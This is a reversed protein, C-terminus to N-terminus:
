KKGKRLFKKILFYFLIFYIILFVFVILILHITDHDLRNITKPFDNTTSHSETDIFTNKRGLLCNRYMKIDQPNLNLMCDDIYDGEGSM